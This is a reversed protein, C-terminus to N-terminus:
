SFTFWAVFSVMVLTLAIASLAIIRDRRKRKKKDQAEKVYDMYTKWRGNYTFDTKVSHWRKDREYDFMNCVESYNM